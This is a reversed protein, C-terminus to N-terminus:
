RGHAFDELKYLAHEWCWGGGDPGDIYVMNRAYNHEVDVSTALVTYVGGPLAACAFNELGARHAKTTLVIITRVHVADGVNFQKSEEAVPYTSM